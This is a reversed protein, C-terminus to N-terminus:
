PHFKEGKALMGLIQTMRRARTEPRKATQLRYLIAYRNSQNLTAFFAAAKKDHNLAALFDAPPVANRASDYAAEWRGDAQAAKVAALGAPTMQKTKILREAHSTNVKSWQSRPGRPTFRQIWSQDDGSKKLGDIWGFCLAQDLAEAYTISPVGTHKKYLRMWLEKASAHNQALWDRFATATPFAQSEIM